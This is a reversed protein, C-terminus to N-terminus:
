MLPRLLIEAAALSVVAIAVGLEVRRFLYYTALAM